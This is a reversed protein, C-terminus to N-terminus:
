KALAAGSMAAHKRMGELPRFQTVCVVSPYNVPSDPRPLPPPSPAQSGDWLGKQAGGM